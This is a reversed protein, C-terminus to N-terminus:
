PTGPAAVPKFVYFKMGIFNLTASVGTALVFAVEVIGAIGKGASLTLANVLVNAGLTLAYLVIFRPASGSAHRASGFTWARNAFYAFVTGTLFGIAKAADIGTWTTWVLARYTLFDLLVTLGGVILFIGAERKV